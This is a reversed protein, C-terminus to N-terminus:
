KKLRLLQLPILVEQEAFEFYRTRYFFQVAEQNQYINRSTYWYADTIHIRGVVSYLIGSLLCFTVLISSSYFKIRKKQLYKFIGFISLPSGATLLALSIGLEKFDVSLIASSSLPHPLFYLLSDFIVITSVFVLVSGGAITSVIGLITKRQRWGWVATGFLIIVIGTILSIVAGTPYFFFDFTLIDVFLTRYFVMCGVALLLVGVIRRALSNDEM